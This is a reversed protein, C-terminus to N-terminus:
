ESKLLDFLDHLEGFADDPAGVTEGTIEQLTMLMRSRVGHLGSALHAASAFGHAKALTTLDPRSNGSMLPRISYEFFAQWLKHRGDAAYYRQCKCIGENLVAIAWRRDLADLADREPDNILISEEIDLQDVPVRNRSDRAARSRLHDINYNRVAAKILTRLKARNPNARTFLQNALIKENFFAQTLDAADERGRNLQRFYAYIPPWYLEAMRSMAADREAADDSVLDQVLSWSTTRFRAYTKQELM